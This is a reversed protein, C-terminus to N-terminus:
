CRLGCIYRIKRVKAEYLCLFRHFFQQYAKHSNGDAERYRGLFFVYAPIEPGIGGEGVVGGERQRLPHDGAAQTKVQAEGVQFEVRRGAGDKRHTEQVEHGIEVVKAFAAHEQIVAYRNGSDM